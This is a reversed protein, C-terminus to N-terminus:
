PAKKLILTSDKLEYRLPLIKLIIELVEELSEQDIQMSLRMNAMDPDELIVEVGYREAIQGAVKELSQNDLVLIENGVAPFSADRILDLVFREEGLLFVAKHGPTLAVHQMKGTKPNERSIRVKGSHLSVETKEAGPYASVLFRTGLVELVLESTQVRFPSSPHAEVEFYAEGRLQVVRNKRWFRRPYVLASGPNLTLRTGDDLVLSEPSSGVTLQEKMIFPSDLDEQQYALYAALSVLFLGLVLIAAYRLWNRISRRRAPGASRKGILPSIKQLVREKGPFAEQAESEALENWKHELLEATRASQHLALMDEESAVGLRFKLFHNRYTESSLDTTKL